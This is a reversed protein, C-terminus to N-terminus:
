NKPKLSTNRRKIRKSPLANITVVPGEIIELEKTQFTRMYKKYPELEEPMFLTIPINRNSQWWWKEGLKLLGKKDSSDEIDNLVFMSTFQKSSVQMIGIYEQDNFKVITIFPLPSRPASSVHEHYLYKEHNNFDKDM